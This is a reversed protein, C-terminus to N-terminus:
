KLLAIIYIISSLLAIYFYDLIHEFFHFFALYPISLKGQKAFIPAQAVGSIDINILAILNYAVLVFTIIFLLYLLPTPGNKKQPKNFKSEIQYLLGFVLPFTIFGNTLLERVGHALWRSNTFVGSNVKFIISLIIFIFVGILIYAKALKQTQPQQKLLIIRIIGAYLLTVFFLIINSFFMMKWNGGHQYTVPNERSQSLVKLTEDLGVRNISATFIILLFIVSIITLAVIIKKLKPKNLKTKDIRSGYLLFAGPLFLSFMIVMPLQGLFHDFTFMTQLLTLNGDEHVVTNLLLFESHYVALFLYSIGFIVLCLIVAYRLLNEQKM